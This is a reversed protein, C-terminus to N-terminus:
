QPMGTWRRLKGAEKWDLSMSGSHVPPPKISGLGSRNANGVVDLPETLAITGETSGDPTSNGLVTGPQWGQKMLLRHGINTSPLPNPPASVAEPVFPAPTVPSTTEFSTASRSPIPTTDPHLARRRASRDVYANSTEIHIPTQDQRSLLSRKLMSLAKKPDRGGSASQSTVSEGPHRKRKQSAERQLKQKHDFLEIEDGGIPSCDVCPIRNEHIHVVFTTSGISLEDAHRLRRPVSAVRPSSLRTGKADTADTSGVAPAPGNGSRVFTGHKSGMDVVCWEKREKDWYITAHLKSVEMEKLRIRPTESAPLAMDRGVQVESFGDLVALTKRKHLIASIRVLLRFSASTMSLKAGPEGAYTETPYPTLVTSSALDHSSGPSPSDDSAPWEYEPRYGAATEIVEGDEM